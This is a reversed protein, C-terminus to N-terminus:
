NPNVPPMGSLHAEIVALNSMVAYVEGANRSKPQLGKLLHQIGRLANHIEALQERSLTLNDAMPPM